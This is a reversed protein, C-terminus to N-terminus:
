NHKHVRRFMSEADGREFVYLKSFDELNFLCCDLPSSADRIFYGEGNEAVWAELFGRDFSAGAESLIAQYNKEVVPTAWALDAM